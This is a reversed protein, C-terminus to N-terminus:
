ALVDVLAMSLWGMGRSWSEPSLGSTKDAWPAQKSEDWGHVYLGTKADRLRQQVVAFEHVVQEISATPDAEFQKSYRTLFPMGMYVGDLWVQNPYIQKHWFAGNQTRPHEALQQRLQALAQQLQAPTRQTAGVNSQLRQQYVRLLLNGSNISDINFKKLDYSHITGDAQVFSDVMKDIAQQYMPKPAVRHLDSMAQLLLGTTYEFTVPKSRETDWGGWYDENAQHAFATHAM